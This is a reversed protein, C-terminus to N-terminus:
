PEQIIHSNSKPPRLYKKMHCYAPSKRGGLFSLYCQIIRVGAWVVGSFTSDAEDGDIEGVGGVVSPRGQSAVALFFAGFRVWTVDSIIIQLNQCPM